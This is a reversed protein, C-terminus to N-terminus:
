RAHHISRVALRIEMANAVTAMSERGSTNDDDSLCRISAAVVRWHALRRRHNIHTVRHGLVLQEADGQGLAACTIPGSNSGGRCLWTWKAREAEVM